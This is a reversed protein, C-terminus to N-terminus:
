YKDKIIVEGDCQDCLFVEGCVPNDELISKELCYPCIFYWYCVENIDDWTIEKM